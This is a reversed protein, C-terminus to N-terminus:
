PACMCGEIVSMGKLRVNKSYLYPVFLKQHHYCQKLACGRSENEKNIPVRASGDVKM